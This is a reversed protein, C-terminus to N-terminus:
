RAANEVTVKRTTLDVVVVPQDLYNRGIRFLLRVVRHGFIPDKEDMTRLSLAEVVVKAIDKGLAKKVSPEALGMERAMNFEEESLSTPLHPITEVSEAAGKALNVTTLITLDGETQYHTILVKREARGEQEAIKDRSVEAQVFYAQAVSKEALAKEAVARASKTEESTLKFSMQAPAPAADIAAPAPTAGFLSFPLFFSCVLAAAGKRLSPWHYIVRVALSPDCGIRAPYPM